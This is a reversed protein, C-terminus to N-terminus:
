GLGPPAPCGPRRGQGHGHAQKAHIIMEHSVNDGATDDAGHNSGVRGVTASKQWTRRLTRQRDASNTAKGGPWALFRCRMKSVLLPSGRVDERGLCDGLYNRKEPRWRERSAVVIIICPPLGNPALLGEQALKM